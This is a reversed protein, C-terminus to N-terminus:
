VIIRFACESNENIDRANDFNLYHPLIVSCGVKHGACGLVHSEMDNSVLFTYPKNIQRGSQEWFKEDDSVFDTEYFRLEDSVLEMLHDTMDADILEYLRKATSDHLLMFSFTQIGTFLLSPAGIIFMVKNMTANKSLYHATEYIFRRFSM